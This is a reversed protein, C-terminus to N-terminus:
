PVHFAFSWYICSSMSVINLAVNSCTQKNKIGRVLLYFFCVHHNIDLALTLPPVSEPVTAPIHIAADRLIDTIQCHRDVQRAVGNAFM